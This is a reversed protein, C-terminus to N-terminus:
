TRNILLEYIQLMRNMNTQQDMRALEADSLKPTSPNQVTQTILEALESANWTQMQVASSFIDRDYKLPGLILKSGCLLAEMASVSSGDSLPTMVVADARKYLELLSRQDQRKLFVFTVDKQAKMLGTVHQIYETDSGDRGVFVMIHTQKVDQPLQAIAAMALDHNCIPRMLRPFLIFPKDTTLPFFSSTDSRLKRLDVGTRIMSMGHSRQSFATVSDLQSQSTGTIWDARRFANRYMFAVLRNLADKRVFAMPITRLVDTGRTSVIMPVAFYNRFLCWLANPEAFLIHIIDIKKRRVFDRIWIAERVTRPFNRVSFDHVPNLIDFGFREIKDCGASKFALFQSVRPLLYCEANTEDVFYSIWKIDHITNPDALYLIRM